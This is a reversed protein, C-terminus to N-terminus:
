MFTIEAVIPIHDTNIQKLLASECMIKEIRINNSVIINDLCYMQDEEMRTPYWGIMGGNVPHGDVSTCFNKLNTFDENTQSIVYSGNSKGDMNSSNFDGAIIFYDFQGSKSDIFDKLKSLYNARDTIPHLSNSVGSAFNHANILLINGVGTLSSICWNFYGDKPNADYLSDITGMASETNMGLRNLIKRAYPSNGTNLEQGSTNVNTNSDFFSKYLYDFATMEHASDIWEECEQLFLIDIGADLLYKRWNMLMIPYDATYRRPTFGQMWYHAVNNTAVRITKKPTGSRAHLPEIVPVAIKPSFYENTTLMREWGGWGASTKCRTYITTTGRKNPFAIQRVHASSVAASKFVWLSFGSELTPANAITKTTATDPSYYTGSVTYDDLDSNSPIATLQNVDLTDDARQVKYWESITGSTTIVRYYIRVSDSSNRSLVQIIYPNTRVESYDNRIGFVRLWFGASVYDSPLHLITNSSAASRVCYTGIKLVNNLDTGDDLPIPNVDKRVQGKYCKGTKESWKSNSIFYAANTPAIVNVYDYTGTIGYSLVNYSSDAFAYMRASSQSSGSLNYVDGAGCQDVLYEYNASTTPNAVDVTTGNNKIYAGRTYTLQVTNSVDDLQTKTDVLSAAVTDAATDVIEQVEAALGRITDEDADIVSDPHAAPEVIIQVNASGFRFGNGDYIVLEAISAGACATLTTDIPITVKSGSVTGPLTFGLGDPRTGELRYSYGSISAPSYKNTVKLVISYDDDYQSLYIVDSYCEQSLSIKFERNM